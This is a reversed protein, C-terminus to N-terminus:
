ELHSPIFKPVCYGYVCTYLIIPPLFSYIGKDEVELIAACYGECSMKQVVFYLAMQHM